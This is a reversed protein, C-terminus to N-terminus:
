DIKKLSEIKHKWEAIGKQFELSELDIQGGDPGLDGSGEDSTVAGLLKVLDIDTDGKSLADM